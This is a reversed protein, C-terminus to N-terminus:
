QRQIRVTEGGNEVHRVHAILGSIILYQAVIYTFMIWIGAFPIAELFKNVALISDSIMFLIAGILVKWFSEHSTTGLRILATIVMIMLIFAYLVVPFRLDGLRPYLVIILGTGALIVPFAMRARQVNSGSYDGDTLRHQRYALVYLVHAILFAGLGLMFYVSHVHDYMLFSDGLFSFVIAGLVVGSRLPSPVSFFYHLGLFVMILPKCLHHLWSVGFVQAIMEGTAALLFLSIYIYSPRIM